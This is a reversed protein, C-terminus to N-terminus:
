CSCCRHTEIHDLDAALCAASDYALRQGDVLWV